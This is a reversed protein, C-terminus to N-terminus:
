RAVTVVVTVGRGQGYEIARTIHQWELLTTSPPVALQLERGTIMSPFLPVDRLKYGSFDAAANVYKKIESYVSRPRVLKGFSLTNLTKASTALGTELDVFDFTKFDPPLRHVKPRLSGLYNEWAYGQPGIGEGWPIGVELPASGPMMGGAMDSESVFGPGPGPGSAGGVLELLSKGAEYSAWAFIVDAGTKGVFEAREGSTSSAIRDLLGKATPVLPARLFAWIGSATERLQEGVAGVPDLTFQAVFDNKAGSSRNVGRLVACVTRTGSEIDPAGPPVAVPSVQGTQVRCAWSELAGSALGMPDAAMTPQLAVYSYYNVSDAGLPDESLWAADRSSYWRARAYGLRSVPDTWMGHFTSTQGGPFRGGFTSALEDESSQPEFDRAYQPPAEGDGPVDLVVSVGGAEGEPLQLPRGFGDHLAATM